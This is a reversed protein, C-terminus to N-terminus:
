ILHFNGDNTPKIIAQEESPDKRVTVLRDMLSSTVSDSSDEDENYM